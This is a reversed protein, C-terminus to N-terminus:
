HVKDGHRRCVKWTLNCPYLDPRPSDVPRDIYSIRQNTSTDYLKVGVDNAWAIFLTRWQITLIPGEGSHLVTKSNSGFLGKKNLVLEGALGGTVFQRKKSKSFEPDIAVAQTM